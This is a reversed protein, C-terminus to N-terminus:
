RWCKMADLRTSFGTLLSIMVLVQSALGVVLGTGAALFVSLCAASFKEVIV